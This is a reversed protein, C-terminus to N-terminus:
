RQNDSFQGYFKEATLKERSMKEFVYSWTDRSTSPLKDQSMEKEILDNVLINKKNESMEFNNKYFTKEIASQLEDKFQPPIKTIKCVGEVFSAIDSSTFNIKKDNSIIKALTGKHIDNSIYYDNFSLQKEQGKYHKIMYGLVFRRKIINLVETYFLNASMFSLDNWKEFYDEKFINVPKDFLGNNKNFAFLDSNNFSIDNKDLCYVVKYIKNSDTAYDVKPFRTEENEDFTFMIENNSISVQM